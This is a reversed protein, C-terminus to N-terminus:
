RAVKRYRLMTLLLSLVVLGLAVAGYLPGYPGVIVGTDDFLWNAVGDPITLPSAFYKLQNLALATGTLPADFPQDGAVGERAVVEMVGVMPWTVLFVVTVVVTAIFWRRSLSALLLSISGFVLALVACVVLGKGFEVLEDGVAGADTTGFAGGLFLVLQPGLLLLFTATVIAAWKALPYDLRDIPRSFYISLVGSRLDKSVLDPAVFACFMLTLIAVFGDPFGWYTTLVEGSMSRAAAFVTAIIAIFGFIGWAIVKSLVGRGLGFASRVGHVYLSRLRYGRGLRPGEYRRYGIDHIVGAPSSV